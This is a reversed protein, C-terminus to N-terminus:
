AARDHEGDRQRPIHVQPKNGKMWRFARSGRVVRTLRGARYLEDNRYAVEAQVADWMWDTRM